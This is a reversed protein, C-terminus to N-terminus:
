VLSYCINFSQTGSQFLSPTPGLYWQQNNLVPYQNNNPYIFSITNPTPNVVNQVGLFIMLPYTVGTTTNNIFCTGIQWITSLSPPIFTSNFNGSTSVAEIIGQGSGSFSMGNVLPNLYSLNPSQKLSGVVISGMQTLTMVFAYTGTAITFTLTYSATSSSPQNPVWALTNGSNPCALVYGASGIAPPLTYYNSPNVAITAYSTIMNTVTINENLNVQPNIPDTNNVTINIGSRVSNVGNGSSNSWVLVNSGSQPTMVQGINGKSTPLIYPSTTGIQLNSSVTVNSAIINSLATVNSAIVSSMVTPNALQLSVSTGNTNAVIQSSNGTTVSQVPCSIWNLTNNSLQLINTNSGKTNPFSYSTLGTGVSLSNTVDINALIAGSTEIVSPLSVKTNSGVNTVNIQNTTGQVNSWALINGSSPVALYMGPSSGITNPLTYYNSLGLVLADTAQLQASSVVSTGVVIDATLQRAQILDNATVNDCGINECFIDNDVSLYGDVSVINSLNIIVNGNGDDTIVLNDDTNGISTINGGGGGVSAWYLGNNGNSSLVQGNTGKSPFINQMSLLNVNGTFNGSFNSSFVDTNISKAIINGVRINLDPSNSLTNVSM